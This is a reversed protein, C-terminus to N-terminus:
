RWPSWACSQESCRACAVENAVNKNGDFQYYFSKM